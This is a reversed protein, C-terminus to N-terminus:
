TYMCYTETWKYDLYANAPLAFVSMLLLLISMGEFTFVSFFACPTFCFDNVSQIGRIYVYLYPNWLTNAIAFGGECEYSTAYSYCLMAYVSNFIFAFCICLSLSLFLSFSLSGSLSVSVSHSRSQSIISLPFRPLRATTSSMM